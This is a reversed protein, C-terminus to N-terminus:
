RLLDRRRSAYETEDVEGNRRLEELEELRGSTTAQSPHAEEPWAGPPPLAATNRFHRRGYLLVLAAVAVLLALVLLVAPVSM